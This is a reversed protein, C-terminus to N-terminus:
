KEQIYIVESIKMVRDEFNALIAVSPPHERLLYVYRKLSTAQKIM